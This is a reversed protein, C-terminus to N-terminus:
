TILFVRDVICGNRDLKKLFDNLITLNTCSYTVFGCQNRVNAPELQNLVPTGSPDYYGVVSYLRVMM